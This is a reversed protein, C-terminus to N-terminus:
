NPAADAESADDVADAARKLMEGMTARLEDPGEIRVTNGWTVLHHAIQLLGGCRFRVRLSGDPLPEATQTPHFVFRRADSAAAPLFRLSVDSPPEQFTMFSREAYAGLDFDAPPPAYEGVMPDGIRDLRWMVPDPKNRQAAVLYGHTGFVIGYPVVEVTRVEGDGGRDYRMRVTNYGLLAERLVALVDGPVVAEPGPRLAIAEARMLGEYDPALKRREEGRMGTRLKRALDRLSSARDPAHPELADAAHDLEILEHSRVRTFARDGAGTPLRYRLRPGDREREVVGFQAEIAALMREVTRRGCGLEARMDDMTLGDASGALLQMLRLLEAAKEYRPAEGEDTAKRAM